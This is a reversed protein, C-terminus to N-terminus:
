AQMAKIYSSRSTHWRNCEDNLAKEFDAVLNDENWYQSIVSKSNRDCISSGGILWDIHQVLNPTLNVVSLNPYKVKIFQKFMWDDNLGSEWWKKYVFNGIMYKRVWEVCEKALQNPIHICQFSFWMDKPLVNGIPGEGDFIHTSFGCVIEQSYQETRKKFDSCILVDDQLHWTDGEKPLRECSLLFSELNGKHKTDEYITIDAEDIGQLIM